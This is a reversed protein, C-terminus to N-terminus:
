WIGDLEKVMGSILTQTLASQLFAYLDKRQGLTSRDPLIFTTEARLVFDPVEVGDVVKGCPFAVRVTVRTTPRKVDSPSFSTLVRSMLVSVGKRRDVFNATGGQVMEPAFTVAAGADTLLTITAASGM